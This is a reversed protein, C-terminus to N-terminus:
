GVNMDVSQVNIKSGGAVTLLRLWEHESSAQVDFVRVTDTTRLLTNVGLAEYPEWTCARLQLPIINLTILFHAVTPIIIAKLFLCQQFYSETQYLNTSFQPNTIPSQLFHAILM